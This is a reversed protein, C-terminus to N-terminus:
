RSPGTLPSCKTEGGTVPSHTRITGGVTWSSRLPFPRLTYPLCATGCTGPRPSRVSPLLTRSRSISCPVRDEPASARPVPALRATTDLTTTSSGRITWTDPAIAFGRGNSGGRIRREDWMGRDAPNDATDLCFPALAEALAGEIDGAAEAPLCVTVWVGAM